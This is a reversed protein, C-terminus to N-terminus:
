RKPKSILELISKDNDGDINYKDIQPYFKKLKDLQPKTPEWNLPKRASILLMNRLAPHIRSLCLYFPILLRKLFYGYSPIIFTKNTAEFKIDILDHYSFVKKLESLNYERVHGRYEGVNWYFFEINIQNSKGMLARLRNFLNASNGTEMLILGNPKVSSIAYNLLERPSNHLHPLIDILLVLDYYNYEEKPLSGISLIYNINVSKAFYLIRNRNQGLTHWLDNLDDIATVDYGLKSLIAELDCPGAGISLIKSANPCEKELKNIIYKYRNLKGNLYDEFPFANQIEFFAAEIEKDQHIM